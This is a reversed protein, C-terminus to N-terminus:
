YGAAIAREDACRSEKASRAFTRWAAASPLYHTLSDRCIAKSLLPDIKRVLYLTSRSHMRAFNAFTNAQREV